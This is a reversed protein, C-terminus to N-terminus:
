CIVLLKSRLLAGLGQAWAGEGEGGESACRRACTVVHIPPKPMSRMGSSARCCTRLESRISMKGPVVMRLRRRAAAGM